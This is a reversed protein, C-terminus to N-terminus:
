IFFLNFKSRIMFNIFLFFFCVSSQWLKDMIRFMQLTLIDARLDDGSKFIIPIHEGEPSAFVIWLPVTFSDMYKCKEVVINSVHYSASIPLGLAYPVRIESLEKQLLGLRLKKKSQKVSESITHLSIALENQKMLEFSHDGCGYVYAELLLMYRESTDPINLEAKLHWFFPHGIRSRNQIARQLLFRSLPSDHYPEYKIVQVLQLLYDSLEIDSIKRLCNIAFERVEPVVFHFDLLQLAETPSLTAWFPLLRKKYKIVKKIM